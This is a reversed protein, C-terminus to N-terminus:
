AGVPKEGEVTVSKGGMSITMSTGIAMDRLRRVFKAVQSKTGEEIDVEGARIADATFPRFEGQLGPFFFPGYNAFITEAQTIEISDAGHRAAMQHFWGVDLTHARAYLQPRGVADRKILMDKDRKFALHFLEHDLLGRQKDPEDENNKWWEYDLFIACDGLGMTRQELSRVKFLGLAKCGRHSIANGNESSPHAYLIDFKVKQEIIEQYQGPGNGLRPYEHQHAFLLDNLMDHVDPGAITYTPM